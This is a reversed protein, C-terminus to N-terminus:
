NRDAFRRQTVSIRLHTNYASQCGGFSTTTARLRTRACLVANADNGIFSLFFSLFFSIRAAQVQYINLDSTVNICEGPKPAFISELTRIRHFPCLM